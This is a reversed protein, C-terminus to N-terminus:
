EDVIIADYDENFFDSFSIDIANLHKIFVKLTMNSTGAEVKGYQARDLGRDYAFSEHSSYDLNKRLQRFRLGIKKQEIELILKLNEKKQKM